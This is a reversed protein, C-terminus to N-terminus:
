VHPPWSGIARAARLVTDLSVTTVKDGIRLQLVTDTKGVVRGASSLEDIGHTMVCLDGDAIEGPPLSRFVIATAGDFCDFAECTRMAFADPAKPFRIPLREVHDAPLEEVWRALGSGEIVGVIPVGVKEPCPVPELEESRGPRLFDPAHRDWEYRRADDIWAIRGAILDELDRLRVQLARALYGRVSRGARRLSRSDLIGAVAERPLCAADALGEPSVIGLMRM